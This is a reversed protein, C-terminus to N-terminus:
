PLCRLRGMGLCIPALSFANRSRTTLTDLVIALLQASLTLQVSRFRLSAAQAGRLIVLERRATKRSSQM